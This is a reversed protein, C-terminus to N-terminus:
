WKKSLVRTLKGRYGEDVGTKRIFYDVRDEVSLKGFEVLGIEIYDEIIPKGRWLPESYTSKANDPVKLWM